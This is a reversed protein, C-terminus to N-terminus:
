GRQARRRQRRLMLAPPLLLLAGAIPEPVAAVVDGAGVVSRAPLPAAATTAAANANADLLFYDDGNIKGDYNFDGTHYSVASGTAGLNRDIQFYDDGNIRGDLNADGAYTYAVLLDGAAVSQGGFTSYAGLPLDSNIAYAVVRSELGDSV